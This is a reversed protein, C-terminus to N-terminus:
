FWLDVDTDAFGALAPPRTVIVGAVALGEQERIQGEDLAHFLRSLFPGASLRRFRHFSLFLKPHPLKEIPGLKKSTLAREAARIVTAADLEEMCRRKSQWHRDCGEEHCPMCDGAGRVLVVNRVHQTGTREFPNRDEGFGHPCPTWKVPNTPGYLAVTPAGTAAALHTVATDLGVYVRCSGILKATESFKLRGTLDV